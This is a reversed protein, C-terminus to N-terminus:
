DISYPDRVGRASPNRSASGAKGADSVAANNKAEIKAVAGAAGINRQKITYGVLLAAGVGGAFVYRGMKTALFLAISSLM